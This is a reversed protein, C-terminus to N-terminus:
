TKGKGGDKNCTVFLKVLNATENRTGEESVLYLVYRCNTVRLVFQHRPKKGMKKRKGEKLLLFWKM